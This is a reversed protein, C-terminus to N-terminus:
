DTARFKQTPRGRAASQAVEEAEISGETLLHQLVQQRDRPNLRRTKRTLTSLTMWGRHDQLKRLVHQCDKHFDSQSIHRDAQWLMKRTIWNNLRIARDVDGLTIEPWDEGCFRSCALLMALKVTKEAVRSWIAAVVRDETKRKNSISLSHDKMREYAGPAWDILKPHGGGGDLNGGHTQLQAWAKAANLISDPLRDDAEPDQYDVYDDVEFVLFRGILGNKMNEETVAEWFGEPVSTGYIVCHPYSLTKVKQRDGYADMPCFAKNASSYITMLRASIQALHPASKHQMAHVLHAIEDIQFLTCWEADMQSIIGAHSGIAEPGIRNALGCEALVRTNLQRSHDKGAGSPALGLVYLNTRARKSTQVKGGTLTSMLALAGGLALEPLPYHATRLNFDILDGILGPIQQLDDPFGGPDSLKESPTESGTDTAVGATTGLIGSLNVGPDPQVSVVESAKDAPPTGRDKGNRIARELEEEPLPPSNGANWGSVLQSVEAMTLREGMDGVLAWLHGSLQFAATQRGGETVNDCNGMYNAARDWLSGGSGAPLRQPQAQPKPQEAPWLRGCLGRLAESGDGIDALGQWVHGTMAWFRGQDYIEVQCKGAGMKAVCRAGEPKRARTILKLGTGSPSIEVYAVGRFAEVIEAAWDALQGDADLCGDLDIGCYPYNIALAMGTYLHEQKRAMEFSTWATPDTSSGRGGGTRYPVKTGNESLWLMWIKKDRLEAPIDNLAM